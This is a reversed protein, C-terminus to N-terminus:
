PLEGYGTSPPPPVPTQNILDWLATATGSVDAPLGPTPPPAPAELAAAVTQNASLSVWPSLRQAGLADIIKVAKEPPVAVTILNGPRDQGGGVVTYEGTTLDPRPTADTVPAGGSTVSVVWLREEILVTFSEDKSGASFGYLNIIHGPRLAGGVVRDTAASFSVVELGLDEVFRVEEIPKLNVGNLMTGAGLQATTMKGMVDEFQWIGRDRADRARMPDGAMVMDQTVVTYPEISKAVMAPIIMPEAPPPQLFDALTLLLGVGLLAVAGILVVTRTNM